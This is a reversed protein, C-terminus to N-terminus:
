KEVWVGSYYIAGLNFAAVPIGEKIGENYYELCKAIIEENALQSHIQYFSSWEMMKYIDGDEIGRELEYLYRKDDESLKM